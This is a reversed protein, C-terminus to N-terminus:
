FDKTSHNHQGKGNFPKAHKKRNAEMKQKREQKIKAFEIKQEPTLMQEFLLMNARRIKDAEQRLKKQESKLQEIRKEEAPTLAESHRLTMLEKHNDFLKKMIPDLKQRDSERNKDLTARQEATLNLRKAIREDHEKRMKQDMHPRKSGDPQPPPGDFAYTASSASIFGLCMLTLLFKRM